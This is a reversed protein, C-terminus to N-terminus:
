LKYSVIFLVTRPQIYVWQDYVMFQDIAYRRKHKLDFLNEARVEFGWLSNRKNYYLSASALQYTEKQNTTQQKSFTYTYHAKFVFDKLFNYELEVSPETTLYKSKYTESQSNTFRQTWILRIYPANKKRYTTQLRYSLNQNKYEIQEENIVRSYDSLGANISTGLVFNSLTKSFSGNFSYNNEPLDSYVSTSVQDIGTLITTNRISKERRIYSFGLNYYIRNLINTNRYYITGRHYSENELDLNGRYLQNFSNLRYRNAYEAADKFTSNMSYDLVIKNVSNVEFEMNLNPLWLSKNKNILKEEFQKAQWYYQHYTIGPKFIFSGLMFKYEFGLYPNILRYDLDNNFGADSFSNETGDNLVQFDITEYSQNYFHLGIFPYLHNTNNLVWYHKYEVQGSHTTSTYDQSFNYANGEDISPIIDSFLPKDFVWDTLSNGKKFSHNANIESTHKYKPQISWRLNQAVEFNDPNSHTYINNNENALLSTINQINKADTYDAIITYAVDTAMNPQYRLKINNITSLGKNKRQDERNEILNDQSLYVIESKNLANSRQQNVISYAEINLSNSLKHTFNVAGFLTKKHLIDPNSAFQYLNSDFTNIPSDTFSSYGGRFRMVDQMSLPSENVNNLSGIFNLTTEPNYYFLTPHIYYREEVGGGAQTEGFLFRNKGEKLKINMAMRESRHLGKMFSVEQYDDIVEVEEVVEAPINNVGLKTDGGFFSKGDVLLDTVEKGYVKVNGERDVEVGPLKELMERLKRENGSIFTDPRYTITDKKVIMAMKARVVVEELQETSAQMIFDKNISQTLQITDIITTFGISTISLSYSVQKSLQLKYQGNYDSIAFAIRQDKQLPKAIMNSGLIPNGISDKIVGKLYLDQAFLNSTIFFLLIVLKFKTIFKIFLKHM